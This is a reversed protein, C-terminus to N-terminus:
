AEYKAASRADAFVQVVLSDAPGNVYSVTSMSPMFVVMGPAITSVVGDITIDGGGELVYLYEESTDQHPPITAGPAIRMLAFFAHDGRALETSVAGGNPSRRSPLNASRAVIAPRPTPEPARTSACAALALALAAVLAARTV